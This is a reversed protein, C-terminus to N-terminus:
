ATLIRSFNVILGRVLIRMKEIAGCAYAKRRLYEQDTSLGREILERLLDTVVQANESSGSALGMLHKEGTSGVGIAEIVHRAGVIVAWFAM